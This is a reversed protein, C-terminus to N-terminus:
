SPIEVTVTTGAGPSSRIDCTGGAQAVRSRMFTLGQGCDCAPDFGTGDDRVTLRVKGPQYDLGLTVTAAVAHKRVNAMAEQACRFVVMETATPLRRTTGAVDCGVPIRTEKALQGALWRVAEPLSSGNRAAPPQGSILARAEALNERATRGAEGLHVRAQDLTDAADAAQLLMLISTFGQALTDHIEAALRQREALVGADHEARALSDQAAALAAILEARETSQEIIRNIWRGFTAASSVTGVAIGAGWLALGLNGSVWLVPRLLPILNFAVSAAIAWRVRLLVFVQPILAFLAFSSSPSEAQAVGLLVALGLVYWATRAPVASGRTASRGLFTYWPAMAALATVAIVRGTGATGAAVAALTGALVIGYYTDAGTVRRRWAHQDHVPGDGHV